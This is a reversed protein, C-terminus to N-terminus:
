KEHRQCEPCIGFFELSHRLWGYQSSMELDVELKNLRKESEDPLDIAKMKKCKLCVVHHHHDSESEFRTIGDGIDVNRVRESQRLKKLSRYITARDTLQKQNVATVVEAATVPKKAGGIVRLILESTKIKKIVENTYHSM